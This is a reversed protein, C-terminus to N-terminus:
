VSLRKTWRIMQRGGLVGYTNLLFSAVPGTIGTNNGRICSVILTSGRIKRGAIIISPHILRFVFSALIWTLFITLQSTPIIGSLVGDQSIIVHVEISKFYDKIKASRWM